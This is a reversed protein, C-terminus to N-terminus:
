EAESEIQNIENSTQEISITFYHIIDKLMENEAKLMEIKNKDIIALQELEDIKTSILRYADEASKLLDRYHNSLTVADDRQKTLIEISNLNSTTNVSEVKDAGLKKKVGYAAALLALIGGLITELNNPSIDM